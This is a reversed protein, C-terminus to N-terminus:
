QAVAARYDADDIQALVAGARVRQYDQVPVARLYGAVRAAIPTQDSQLYADDSLQWGPRGEFRTFRTMIAALLGLAILIVLGCWGVEVWRRRRTTTASTM